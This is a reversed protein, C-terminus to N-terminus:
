SKLNLIKAIAERYNGPRHGRWAAEFGLTFSQLNEKNPKDYSAVLLTFVEEFTANQTTVAEWGLHFGKTFEMQCSNPQGGCIILFSEIAGVLSEFYDPQDPADLKNKTEM